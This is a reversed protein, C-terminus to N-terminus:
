FSYAKLLESITKYVNMYDQRERGRILKFTPYWPSDERDLLWRYDPNSPLLLWVNQGIAGAVHAVSTDVSIVLDMCKILAATDSFDNLYQDHRYINPYTQLFELDGNRYEKQLVHWELPLDFLPSLSRIPISRNSDNKHAVSGSWVLGIRSSTKQSLRRQWERIKIEDAHLYPIEAPINSLDSEFIYPLSMLACYADFKPIADGKSIVTMSVDLTSVLNVLSKPVEFIIEECIRSVKDLYRCFQVTDGLGQEAYIFVRKGYFDDACSAPNQPFKYYNDRVDRKKLRWEYYQWGERYNGTLLLLLSKNWYAEAFSEDIQIAREYSKLAEDYKGLEQLVAARNYWADAYFADIGLAQDYLCLATEHQLMDSLINAKNTTVRVDQPSFLEAKEYAELAAEPRGIERFIVGKNILSDVHNPQLELVKDYMRLAESICKQEKLCIALNYYADVNKEDLDLANRYSLAAADLDGCGREAKGLSVFLTSSASYRLALNRFVERALAFENFKLYLVGGNYLADFYDPALKAAKQFCNQAETLSGIRELVVGKNNYVFCNNQNVNLYQDFYYIACSYNELKTEILALLHICDLFQKEQAFIELCISRAIIFEGKEFQSYAVKFREVIKTQLNLKYSHNKQM